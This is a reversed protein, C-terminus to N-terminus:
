PTTSHLSSPNQETGPQTTANTNQHALRDQEFMDLPEEETIYTSNGQRSPTAVNPINPMPPPLPPQDEAAQASTNQQWNYGDQIIVGPGASSGYRIGDDGSDFKRRRYNIFVLFGLVIIVTGGILVGIFTFVSTTTGPGNDLISSALDFSFSQSDPQSGDTPIDKKSVTLNINLTATETTIKGSYSGAALGITVKGDARTVYNTAGIQVQAGKAIVKNETVNIVVPFGTAQVSSTYTGPSVGSGNGTISFYYKQGPNLNSISTSFNGGGKNQVSAQQDLSQASSGYSLSSTPNPATVKWSITASTYSPIASVSEVVGTPDVTALPETNETTTNEVPETPTTVIPVPTTFSPKTGGNSSSGGSGGTSPKTSPKTSPSSSSSPSPSPAPPNTIVFKGEGYTTTTNNLKSDGSFGVTAQNNAATALFSVAFIQATGSAPTRTGSFGITGNGQTITPTGYASDAISISTVKLSGATYLLTGKVSGTSSTSYSRINVVFSTGVSMQSNDPTVYLKNIGAASVLEVPVLGILLSLSLVIPLFRQTLFRFFSM